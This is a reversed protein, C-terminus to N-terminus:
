VVLCYLNELAFILLVVLTVGGLLTQCVQTHQSASIFQTYSPEGGKRGRGEM